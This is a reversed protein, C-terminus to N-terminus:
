PVDVVLPVGVFRRAVNVASEVACILPVHVNRAYSSSEMMAPDMPAVVSLIPGAPVLATQPVGGAEITAGDPAASHLEPVPVATVLPTFVNVHPQLLVSPPALVAGSAQEEIRWYVTVAEGVEPADPLMLQVDGTSPPLVVVQVLVGPTPKRVALM